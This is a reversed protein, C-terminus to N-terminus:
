QLVEPPSEHLQLGVGFKGREDADVPGIRLVIKTQL